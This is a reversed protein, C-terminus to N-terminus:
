FDHLFKKSLFVYLKGFSLGLVIGFCMGTLVDLPFHVGIYIRSYAVLLAWIVMGFVFWKSPYVKRWITIFFLAVGFSNSAHASFYGFSGGCSDKVLRMLMVLEENYCPRLRKFGYKFANALQDTVGVMIAVTVILLLTKKWGFAKFSFFCLVIYLPISSLKNTTFMWFADWSTTGLSNLFLFLSKDLELLSDM